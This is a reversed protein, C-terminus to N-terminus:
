TRLNHPIAPWSDLLDGQGLTARTAYPKRSHHIAHARNITDAEESYGSRNNPSRSGDQAQAPARSSNV